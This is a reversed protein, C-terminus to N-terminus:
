SRSQATDRHRDFCLLIIMDNSFMEERWDDIENYLYVYIYKDFTRAADSCVIEECHLSASEVQPNPICLEMSDKDECKRSIDEVCGENVGGKEQLIEDSHDQRKM